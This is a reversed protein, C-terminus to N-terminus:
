QRSIRVVIFLLIVATSHKVVFQNFKLPLLLIHNGVKGQLWDISDLKSANRQLKEKLRTSYFTYHLSVINCIPLLDLPALLMCQVCSSNPPAVGDGLV